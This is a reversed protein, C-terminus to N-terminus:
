EQTNFSGCFKCEIGYFHFEGNSKKCCDNCYIEKINKKTLLEENLIGIVYTNTKLKWDVFIGKCLVVNNIFEKELIKFKGYPSDVVDNPIIPIINRPLPTNAINFRILNWQDSMDVISKKCRSCKYQNHELSKELCKTHIPHNCDPISINSNYNFTSENCVSCTEEQLNVTCKHNQKNKSFFCGNCNLCHFLDEKNGVRCIGCYDCHTINKETYIKCIKCYNNSFKISCNSCFESLTQEYDCESCTIKNVVISNDNCGMSDNDILRREKHCRICPDYINCCEFYFKYCKKNYHECTKSCNSDFYKKKEIFNGMMIQQIKKNKENESLTLDSKIAKILSRKDQESSM